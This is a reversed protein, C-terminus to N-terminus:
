RDGAAPGARRSLDADIVVDYKLRLKEFYDAKAQARRDSEWDREVAARAEDLSFRWPARVELHGDDNVLVDVHRRRPVRFLKFAVAREGLVVRDSRIIPSAAM